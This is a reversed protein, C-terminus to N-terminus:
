LSESFAAVPGERDVTLGRSVMKGSTSAAGAALIREGSPSFLKLEGASNFFYANVLMQLQLISRRWLVSFGKVQCMNIQKEDLFKTWTSDFHFM